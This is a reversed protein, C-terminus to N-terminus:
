RTKKPNIWYINFINESQDIALGAFCRNVAVILGALFIIALAASLKSSDEM